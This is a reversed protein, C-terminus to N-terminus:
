ANLGCAKWRDMVTRDAKSGDLLECHRSARDSDLELVGLVTGCMQALRINNTPFSRVGM